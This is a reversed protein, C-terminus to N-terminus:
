TPGGSRLDFPFRQLPRLSWQRLRRGLEFCGGARHIGALKCFAGRAKILQAREQFVEFAATQLFRGRAETERAARLGRAEHQDSLRRSLVLIDLALREDAARALKEVAHEGGDVQGLGIDVDGIEDEPARGAVARRRRFLHLDALREDLALDLKKLGFIRTKRPLAAALCSVPAVSPM